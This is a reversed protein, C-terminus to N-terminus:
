ANNQRIKDRCVNVRKKLFGDVFIQLMINLVFTPRPWLSKSCHEFFSCIQHRIAGRVGVPKPRMEDGMHTVKWATESAIACCDTNQNYNSVVFPGLLLSPWSHNKSISASVLILLTNLEVQLSLFIWGLFQSLFVNEYKFMLIIKSEQKEWKEKTGQKQRPSTSINTCHTLSLFPKPANRLCVSM